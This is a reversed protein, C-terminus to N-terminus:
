PYTTFLDALSAATAAGRLLPTLGFIEEVTRLTSAHSYALDGRYGPKAFPSIAILGIPQDGGAGEDWTILILGGDQYAPSAMLGPLERALFDDAQRVRDRPPACSDHGSDCLSPVIFNYRAVAGSRLDEALEAYPRVHQICHANMPDPPNGAVDEFYVFPDHRVAYGHVNYTPCLGPTIDEAYAKWTLGTQELYTTLHCTVPLPVEDPPADFDIGLPDGAELTIYNGLSPHVGGNRYNAAHAFRPLLTGNIYPASSSGEISAWDQNELVILFVTKLAHAAGDPEIAPSEVPCADHSTSRTPGCAGGALLLAAAALASAGVPSWRDAGNV